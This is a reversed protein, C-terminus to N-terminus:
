FIFGFLIMFFRIGRIRRTNNAAESGIQLEEGARALRPRVMLVINVM